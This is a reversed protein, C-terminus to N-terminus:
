LGLEFKDFKPNRAFASLGDSIWSDAESGGSARFAGGFNSAVLELFDNGAGLDITTARRVTVAGEVRGGPGNFLGVSVTDAGIGASVKLDGGISSGYIELVDAGDGLDVTLGGGIQVGVVFVDDDGAGAKVILDRGINTDGIV